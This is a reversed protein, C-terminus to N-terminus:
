KTNLVAQFIGKVILPIIFQSSIIIVVGAISWGLSKKGAEKEEGTKASGIKVGARIVSFLLAVCSLAIVIPLVYLFIINTIKNYADILENKGAGGESIESLNWFKAEALTNIVFLSIKNM